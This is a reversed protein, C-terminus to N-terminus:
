KLQAHEFYCPVFISAEATQARCDASDSALFLVEPERLTAETVSESVTIFLLVSLVM